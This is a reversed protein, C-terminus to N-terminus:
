TCHASPRKGLTFNGSYAMSWGDGKLATTTFSYLQVEVKMAYQLTFNVKVQGKLFLYAYMKLFQETRIVKQM